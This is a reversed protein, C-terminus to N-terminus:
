VCIQLNRSTRRFYVPALQSRMRPIRKCYVSAPDIPRQCTVKCHNSIGPEDFVDRPAVVDIPALLVVVETLVVHDPSWYDHM